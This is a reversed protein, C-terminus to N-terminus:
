GGISNIFKPALLENMRRERVDEDRSITVCQLIMMAWDRLHLPHSSQVAAHAMQILHDRDFTTEMNNAQPDQGEPLPERKKTFKV